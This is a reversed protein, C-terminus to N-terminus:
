NGKREGTLYAETAKKAEDKTYAREELVAIVLDAGYGFTKSKCLQERSFTAKKKM